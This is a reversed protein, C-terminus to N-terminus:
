LSPSPPSQNRVLPIYCPVSKSEQRFCGFFGSLISSLLPKWLIPHWVSSCYHRLSLFCVRHIRQRGWSVAKLSNGPQPCRSSALCLMASKWLQPSLSSRRSLSTQQSNVPCSGYLLSSYSSLIGSIQLPSGSCKASYQDACTHSSVVWHQSGGSLFLPFLIWCPVREDLTSFQAQERNGPQSVEYNM